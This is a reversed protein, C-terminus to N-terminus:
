AALEEQTKRKTGSWTKGTRRLEILGTIVPARMALRMQATSNGGPQRALNRLMKQDAALKRIWSKLGSRFALYAEKSSIQMEQAFFVEEGSRKAFCNLLATVPSIDALSTEAENCVPLVLNEM